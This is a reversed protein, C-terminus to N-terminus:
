KPLTRHYKEILKGKDKHNLKEKNNETVGRLKYSNKEAM